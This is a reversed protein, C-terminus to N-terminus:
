SSKRNLATPMSDVRKHFREAENTLRDLMEDAEKRPIAHMRRPGGGPDRHELTFLWQGRTGRWVSLVGHTLHARWEILRDLEDLSKWVFHVKSGKPATLRKLEDFSQRIQGGRKIKTAPRAAALWQLADEIQRELEAFQQICEGRWRNASALAEDFQHTECRAHDFPANM